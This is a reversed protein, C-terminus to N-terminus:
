AQYKRIRRFGNKFKLKIFATFPKPDHFDLDAFVKNRSFYPRLYDNSRVDERGHKFLSDPLDTALEIWYMDKKYETLNMQDNKVLDRFIIWPHNIGSATALLNCRVLRCNNEMLKLQGDRPDKKFEISFYGRYNVHRLLREAMQDLEPTAETSVGVRMVGFHAPHQRLKKHFFKGVMDGKSNIYGQLKVLNEDPGPIVEQVVVPIGAEVCRKFRELLENQNQVEFNKQHFISIFEFSRVPKVICPYQLTSIAGIDNMGVLHVTKPYPIKCEEALAYTKEKEVFYQHIKQEPTVLKYYKSLIEKHRSLAISTNDSTELILAGEWRSTNSILTNIFREEEVEPIPIRVVESVYRSLYATDICAYTMAIIQINKDALARIVGYGPVSCGIVIVKDM